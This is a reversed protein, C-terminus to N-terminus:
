SAELTQQQHSHTQSSLLSRSNALQPSNVHFCLKSKELIIQKLNLLYNTWMEIRDREEASFVIAFDTAVAQKM